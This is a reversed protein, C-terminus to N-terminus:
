FLVEFDVQFWARNETTFGPGVPEGIARVNAAGCPVTRAEHTAAQMLAGADISLKKADGRENRRGLLIVRVRPRRDDVVPDPGGAGQIVCFTQTAAEATELWMGFSYVYGSGLVAEAWEKFDTLTM